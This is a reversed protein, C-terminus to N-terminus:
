RKEDNFCSFDVSSSCCWPKSPFTLKSHCNKSPLCSKEKQPSSQPSVPLQKTIQFFHLLILFSFSLTLKDQHNIVIQKNASLLHGLM